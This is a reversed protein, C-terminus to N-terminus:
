SIVHEDAGNGTTPPWKLVAYLLWRRREEEIGEYVECDESNGGEMILKWNLGVEAEERRDVEEAREIEFGQELAWSLFSRIVHRGTHLGAVIIIRSDQTHSLLSKTVRLQPLNLDGM